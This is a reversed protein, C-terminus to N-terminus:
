NLRMPGPSGIQHIGTAKRRYIVSKKEKTLMGVYAVDSAMHKGSFGSLRNSIYVMRQVERQSPRFEQVVLRVCLINNWNEGRKRSLSIARHYVR